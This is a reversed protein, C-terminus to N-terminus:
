EAGRGDGGARGSDRAGRRGGHGRSPGGAEGQACVLLRADRTGECEGPAQRAFLGTIGASTGLTLAYVLIM